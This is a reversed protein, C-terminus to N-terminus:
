FRTFSQGQCDPCVPILSSSKFAIHKGCSDCALTGPGTIQGSKYPHYQKADLELAALKVRTKDAVDMFADLAFNELLDIDFKLWESLANNEEALSPSQAAHEVDRMVFEAIQHIEEQTINGLEHTKRKAQELADGINHLTDDMAEYLFGIIDDYAETSKNKSM